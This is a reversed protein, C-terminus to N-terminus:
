WAALFACLASHSADLDARQRFLDADEGFLGDVQALANAPVPLPPGPKM